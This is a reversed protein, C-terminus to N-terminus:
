QFSEKLMGHAEVDEVPILPLRIIFTTGEGPTSEVDITGGLERIVERSEFAGIGMGANGKTTDFPKFLRNRIFEEDMGCGNDLINIEAQGANSELTIEVKGDCSSAEQANQIIHEIVAALTDKEGSVFLQSELKGIAPQPLDTNRSEAVEKVLHGIDIRERSKEVPLVEKKLNRTLHNMKTVANDITDIADSLFDPNNKFKRANNSILSLQATINKMDHVVFASLRNFAEFQKAEALDQTTRLLAILSATQRGMTKLLDYDEWNYTANIDSKSLLIIGLLRDGNFLPIILAAHDFSSVAEPMLINYYRRPNTLFDVMNIIWDHQILFKILESDAPIAKQMLHNLNWGGVCHYNNTDEDALWLAGGQCKMTDAFAKVINGYINEDGQNEALTRTFGLWEDRYDYKNEYFHKTLFIKIRARVDSSFLVVLLCLLATFLFVTQLAGGWTGGFVRVYYGSVAMFSLYLGALLIM